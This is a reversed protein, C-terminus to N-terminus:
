LYNKQLESIAEIFEMKNVCWQKNKYTTIRSTQKLFSKGFGSRAERMWWNLSNCVAGPQTKYFQIALALPM